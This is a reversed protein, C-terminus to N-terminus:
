IVNVISKFHDKCPIVKHNLGQSRFLERSGESVMLATNPNLDSTGFRPLMETRLLKKVPLRCVQSLKFIWKYVICNSFACSWLIYM